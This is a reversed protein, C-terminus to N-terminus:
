LLDVLPDGPGAGGGSPGHLADRQEGDALGEAGLRHARGGRGALAGERRRSAIIASLSAWTCERM